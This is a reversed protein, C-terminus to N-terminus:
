ITEVIRDHKRALEAYEAIAGTAKFHMDREVPLNYIGRISKLETLSVYGLEPSGFGLDCLGFMTDGDEAIETILWTAAGDPTFFKVVPKLHSGDATKATERGNAILKRMQESLILKQTM